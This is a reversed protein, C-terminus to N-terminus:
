TTGEDKPDDLPMVMCVASIPCVSAFESSRKIEEPATARDVPHFGLRAFFGSATTTLLVMARLGRIKAAALREAVLRQGLGYGRRRPDVAVSRLLGFDGYTEYGAVAALGAGIPIVAYGEPFQDALGDTPLRSGAVLRRVDEYDSSGAPRITAELGAVFDELRARIADRAARFRALMEERPITTDKSAPDPVPWHLRCVKGLFVPCVEEACLTVVTDVGAPDITRVSKARHGSLDVGLEAMVEVAYPNVTSPESGASQVPIRDRLLMRALGEAMQSRASNAVCLFLISKRDNSM